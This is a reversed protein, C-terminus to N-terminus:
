DKLSKLFSNPDVTYFLDSVSLSGRRSIFIRTRPIEKRWAGPHPVHTPRFSDRWGSANSKIQCFGRSTLERLYAAFAVANFHRQAIVRNELFVTPPRMTGSM